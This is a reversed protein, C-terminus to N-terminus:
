IAGSHGLAELSACPPLGINWTEVMNEVDKHCPKVQKVKTQGLVSKSMNVVACSGDVVTM